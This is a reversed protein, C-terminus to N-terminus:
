FFNFIYNNCKNASILVIIDSSVLKFMFIISLRNDM